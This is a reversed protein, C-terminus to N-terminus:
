QRRHTRVTPGYWETARAIIGDLFAHNSQVPDLNSITFYDSKAADKASGGLHLIQDDVRVHRDHQETSVRFEYRDPFQGALLESVAVIRERRLTKASTPPSAPPVDMVDSSTVVTVRVGEPIEPLYRHFTQADLYPDFLDLRTTAGRCISRLRIYTSYPSESPLITGSDDCPINRIAAQAKSLLNNFDKRANEPAQVDCAIRMVDPFSQIARIADSYEKTLEYGGVKCYAHLPHSFAVFDRSFQARLFPVKKPDLDQFLFRRIPDVLMGLSTILEDRQEVRSMQSM